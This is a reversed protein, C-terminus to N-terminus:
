VLKLTVPDIGDITKTETNKFPSKMRAMVFGVREYAGPVRSSCGLVILDSTDILLDGDATNLLLCQVPCNLEPATNEEEWSLNSRAPHVAHAVRSVDSPLPTQVLVTDPRFESVDIDWKALPHPLDALNLITKGRSPDRKLRGALLYGSLEIYGDMTWGFPNNISAPTVDASLVTIRPTRNDQNGPMMITAILSSWTWSPARPTEPVFTEARKKGQRWPNVHWRLGNAVDQRWIGALYKDGTAEHLSRAIGSIAPLRDSDYTLSRTTVTQLGGHWWRYLDNLSNKSFKEESRAADMLEHYREREWTKVEYLFDEEELGYCECGQAVKCEWTMEQQRYSLVRTPMLREQLAWLRSDLPDPKGTADWKQRRDHLSRRVCLQNFPLSLKQNDPGKLEFSRHSEANTRPVLFGHTSNPAVSAAITLYSDRYISTMRSAQIEWDQKDDQVICLSDIWLYKLGLKSTLYVADRFNRPMESVQIGQRRREINTTELKCSQYGGWCHSLAVYSGEEGDTERVKVLDASSLPRLDLVRHPLKPKRSPRCERHSLDCRKLWRQVTNVCEASKPDVSGYESAHGFRRLAPIYTRLPNGAHRLVPSIYIQIPFKDIDPFDLKTALPCIFLDNKEGRLIDLTLKRNLLNTAKRDVFTTIAAWVILCFPCGSKDYSRILDTISTDQLIKRGVLNGCLQCDSAFGLNRIIKLM